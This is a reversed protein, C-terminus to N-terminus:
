IQKVWFNQDTNSGLGLQNAAGDGTVWCDGNATVLTSAQNSLFTAVLPISFGIVPGPHVEFVAGGTYSPGTGFGSPNYDSREAYGYLKQNEAIFLTRVGTGTTVSKAGRWDIATSITASTRLGSSTWTYKRLFGSNSVYFFGGATRSQSHDGLIYCFNHVDTLADDTIWAGSGMINIWGQGDEDIALFDVTNPTSFAKTWSVDKWKKGLPHPAEIKLWQRAPGSVSENFLRYIYGDERLMICGFFSSSWSQSSANLRVIRGEGPVSIPSPVLSTPGWITNTADWYYTTGNEAELLPTLVNRAGGVTIKKIAPLAPIKMPSLTELGHGSVNADGWSWVEGNELLVIGGNSFPRIVSIPKSPSAIPITIPTSQTLQTTGNGPYGMSGWAKLIDNSIRYGGGAFFEIKSHEPNYPEVPVPQPTPTPRDPVTPKTPNFGGGALGGGGTWVGGGYSGGLGSGGGGLPNSTKQTSPLRPYRNQPLMVDLVIDSSSASYTLGVIRVLLNYGSTQDSGSSNFQVMQGLKKQWTLAEGEVSYTSAGREKSLDELRATLQEDMQAATLEVPSSFYATALPKGNGVTKVTIDAGNQDDVSGRKSIGVLRNIMGENNKQISLELSKFVVDDSALNITNTTGSGIQGTSDSSISVNFQLSNKSSTKFVPTFRYEIGKPALDECVETLIDSYSLGELILGEHKISGAGTSGEVTGLISPPLTTAWPTTSTFARKIIAAALGQWSTASFSWGTTPDTIVGSIVDLPTDDKLVEKPGVAQISILGNVKGEIRNIRGAFLIAGEANWAKSTDELIVAAFNKSLLNQWDSPNPLDRKSVSLRATQQGKVDETVQDSGHIVPLVTNTLSGDIWKGLRWQLM